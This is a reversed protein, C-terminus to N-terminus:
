SVDGWPPLKDRDGPRMLMGVSNRSELEFGVSEYLHRGHPTAVLAVITRASTRALMVDLIARGIGRRQHEPDVIMDWITAYLGGDDLLRGIGVVRDDRRAVVNWTRDLAAALSAEDLAPDSWGIARRLARYTHPVISADHEYVTGAGPVRGLEVVHADDEM